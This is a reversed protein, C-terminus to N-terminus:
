LALSRGGSAECAAGLRHSAAAASADGALARGAGFASQKAAAATGLIFQYLSKGSVFEDAAALDAAWSLVRVRMEEIGAFYQANEAFLSEKRSRSSPKQPAPLIVQMIRSFTAAVSQHRKKVASLTADQKKKRETLARNVGTGQEVMAAKVQKQRAAAALEALVAIEKAQTEGLFSYEHPQQQQQEQRAQSVVRHALQAWSKVARERVATDSLSTIYRRYRERLKRCRRTYVHWATFSRHTVQGQWRAVSKFLIHEQRERVAQRQRFRDRLALYLLRLDSCRQLYTERVYCGAASDKAKDAASPPDVYICRMLERLAERASREFQGMAPLLHAEMAYVAAALALIHPYRTNAKVTLQSMSLPASAPDGQPPVVTAERVRRLFVEVTVVVNASRLALLEDTLARVWDQFVAQWALFPADGSHVELDPVCSVHRSIPAHSSRKRRLMLQSKQSGWLPWPSPKCRVPSSPSSADDSDSDYEQLHNRMAADREAEGIAYSSALTSIMSERTISALGAWLVERPTDHVTMYGPHGLRGHRASADYQAPVRATQAKGSGTCKPLRPKSALSASGGKVQPPRLSSTANTVLIQPVRVIPMGSMKKQGHDERPTHVFFPPFFDLNTAIEGAYKPSFLGRRETDDYLYMVLYCPSFYHALMRLFM